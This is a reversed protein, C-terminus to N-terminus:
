FRIRIYKITKRTGDNFIIEYKIYKECEFIAESHTREGYKAELRNSVKILKRYNIDIKQQTLNTMTYIYM